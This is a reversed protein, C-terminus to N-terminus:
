AYGYEKFWSWADRLSEDLPRIRYGLEQEARASSYYHWQCSMAIAASNVDGENGTLRAKLDGARGALVRMLPGVRMVPPRANSAEAMQRWLDFYSINHGALIYHRGRPGKEMAAIAGGAVDRVDCASCGGTPAVPTWTKAVALLMRGSSPKWDWPGLMFGPHVIVADLGAAIGEEVVAEAERKTTVYTCPVKGEKSDDEKVPRDPQGIGLTDVTSIHVLRAGVARAAEVIHRTGEVNIQRHEDLKTWGLQVAAASHLIAQCGEAARLVADRERVDGRVVDVRLNELSRDDPRRALVRVEDAQRELLSRVINNGLLGTAGTVLIKMRPM